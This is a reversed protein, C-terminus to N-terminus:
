VHRTLTETKHTEAVHWPLKPSTCYWIPVCFAQGCAAHCPVAPGAGLRRLGRLRRPARLSRRAVHETELSHTPLLSHTNDVLSRPPIRPCPCPGAQSSPFFIHAQRRSSLLLTNYGAQAVANLSLRQRPTACLHHLGDAVVIGVSFIFHVVALLPWWVCPSLCAACPSVSLLPCPVLPLAFCLTCRTCICPEDGCSVPVACVFSFDVRLEWVSSWALPYVCWARRAVYRPNPRPGQLLDWTGPM